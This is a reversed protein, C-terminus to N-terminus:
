WREWSEGVDRGFRRGSWSRSIRRRHRTTAEQVEDHRAAVVHHRAHRIRVRPRIIDGARVLAKPRRLRRAIWEGLVVGAALAASIAIAVAINTFGGVMDDHLLAYLGRYIALGPLFPTIGAIGTVLPPISFRRSLLGGAIGIFGAAIGTSAIEGLGSPMLVFHHLATGSFAVGATVLLEKGNAHSALAFGVSAIMGMIVRITTETFNPLAAAEQPPLMVGLLGVLEIGFAIGAVIGGTLLMTDFLRAAGTVPAGNMGDQLAQVLTLGALLVVIGSAIIRSPAVALGLMPALWFFGAAFLTALFGGAMNQFFTPLGRANLESITTIVLFSAIGTLGAVLWSGGILVSFAMALLVWGAYVVRLRYLPPSDEIEKVRDLAEELGIRGGTIDRVLRDAQGLRNFDAAAGDVVRVATLPVRRKETLHFVTVTTLTIDAQVRTLGFASAIAKVQRVVDRNGAGSSLLMGACRAALDLVDTISDVDDLAVPALPLPTRTRIPADPVDEPEPSSAWDMLKDRLGQSQDGDDEADDPQAPRTDDQTM